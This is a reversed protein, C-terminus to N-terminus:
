RARRGDQELKQLTNILDAPRIVFDSWMKREYDLPVSTRAAEATLNAVSQLREKDEQRLVRYSESQVQSEHEFRQILSALATSTWAYPSAVTQTSATCDSMLSQLSRAAIERVSSITTQRLQSHQQQQQRMVTQRVHINDELISWAQKAVAVAGDGVPAAGWCDVLRPVISHLSFASSPNLSALSPTVPALNLHRQLRQLHFLHSTGVSACQQVSDQVSGLLHLAVDVYHQEDQLVSLLALVRAQQQQMWALSLELKSLFYSQRQLQIRCRCPFSIFFYIKFKLEV